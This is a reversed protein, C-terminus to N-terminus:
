PSFQGPWRKQEIASEFTACRVNQYWEHTSEVWQGNTRKVLTGGMAEPTTTSMKANCYFHGSQTVDWRDLVCFSPDAAPAEPDLVMTFAHVAGATCLWTESPRFGDARALCVGVHSGEGCNGWQPNDPDAYRKDVFEARVAKCYADAGNAISAIARLGPEARNMLFDAEGPTSAFWWSGRLSAKVIEGYSSIEKSLFKKSRYDSSSLAPAQPWQYTKVAAPAPATVPPPVKVPAPKKKVETVVTDEETAPTVACALTSSALLTTLVLFSSLLKM